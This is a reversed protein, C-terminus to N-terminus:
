PPARQRQVELAMASPGIVGEMPRASSPSSLKRASATVPVWREGKDDLLAGWVFGEVTHTVSRQFKSELDAPLTLGLISAICDGLVKKALEAAREYFGFSSPRDLPVPRKAGGGDFPLPSGQEDFRVGMTAFTADARKRNVRAVLAAKEADTHFTSQAERVHDRAMMVALCCALFPCPGTKTDQRMQDTVRTFEREIEANFRKSSM